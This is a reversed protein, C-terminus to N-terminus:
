LLLALGPIWFIWEVIYRYLYNKIFIRPFGIILVQILGMILFLKAIVRHLFIENSFIIFASLVFVNLLLTLIIKKTVAQGYKVTITSHNDKKDSDIEYYSLLLVDALVLLFFTILFMFQIQSLNYNMLAVPGGWVGCTYIISVFAEKPLFSSKKGSFHLLLFYIITAFSLTVGFYIIEKELWFLIVFLNFVSTAIIIVIFPKLYQFHFTHRFTNAQKKLRYADIIHDLTYIIWVSVPLIIWFAWGPEVNLLKVILFSSFISGIVVDISLTNMLRLFPIAKFNEYKKIGQSEMM